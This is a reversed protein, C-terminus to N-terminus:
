VSYLELFRTNVDGAVFNPHDLLRLHFGITTALGDVRFEELARRM